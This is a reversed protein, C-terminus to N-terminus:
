LEGSSVDGGFTETLFRITAIFCHADAVAIYAVGPRASGSGHTFGHM